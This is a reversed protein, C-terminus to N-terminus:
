RFPEIAAIDAPSGRKIHGWGQEIPVGFWIDVRMASILWGQPGRRYIEHFAGGVVLAVGGKAYRADLFSVGTAEDGSVDVMHNHIYQRVFDTHEPIQLFLKMIDAKGSAKGIAGFDVTADDTFLDSIPGFQDANIFCHYTMRLRKIEDIDELKRLRAEINEIRLDAM